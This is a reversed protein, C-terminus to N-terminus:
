PMQRRFIGTLQTPSLGAASSIELLSIDSDFNSEIYDIARRVRPDHAGGEGPMVARTSWATGAIEIALLRIASEAYVRGRGRDPDVERVIMRTLAEIRAASHADPHM